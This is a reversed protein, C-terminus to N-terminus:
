GFVTCANRKEGMQEVNVLMEDERTYDRWYKASSIIIFSRM